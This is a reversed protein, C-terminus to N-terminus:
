REMQLVSEGTADCAIRKVEQIHHLQGTRVWDQVAEWYGLPADSM